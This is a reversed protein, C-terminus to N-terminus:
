ILGVDLATGGAALEPFKAVPMVLGQSVVGRLKVTKIRLGERLISGGKSVFKRLCRERLFAYREDDPPLYSDIEFYVALDGPHFEGKATVVRWGKGEMEVVELRDADPIPSVSAIRVISALKRAM